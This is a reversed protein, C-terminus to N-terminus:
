PGSGTPRRTVSTKRSRGASTPSGAACRRRHDGADRRGLADDAHHVRAERGAFARPARRRRGVRRARDLGAGRGDDRRGRRARRPRHARGHIGRSRLPSGTRAGEDRAPVDRRDHEVARAASREHVAACRRAGLFRDDVRPRRPRTRSSSPGARRSIAFSTRTTSSRTGSTSRRAMTSSRSSSPRSRVNLAPASAALRLSSSASSWRRITAGPSGPEIRTGLSGGRQRAGALGACYVHFLGAARPPRHRPGRELQEGRALALYARRPECRGTPSM